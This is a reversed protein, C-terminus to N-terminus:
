PDAQRDEMGRGVQHLQKSGGKFDLAVYGVPEATGNPFTFPFSAQISIIYYQQILPCCGFPSTITDSNLHLMDLRGIWEKCRAVVKRERVEGYSGDDYGAM